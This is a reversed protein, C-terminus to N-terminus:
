AMAGTLDSGSLSGSFREQVADIADHLQDLPMGAYVGDPQDPGNLKALASQRHKACGMPSENSCADQDTDCKM